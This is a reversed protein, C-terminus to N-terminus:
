IAHQGTKLFELSVELAMSIANLYALQNGQNCVGAEIISILSQQIGAKEALEYQKLGQKYRLATIRAGMDKTIVFKEIIADNLIRAREEVEEKTLIAEAERDRGEELISNENFSDGHRKQLKGLNSIQIDEFDIDNGDAFTLIFYMLNTVIGKVNDSIPNAEVLHSCERLTRATYVVEHSLGTEEVEIEQDFFDAILLENGSIEAMKCTYYLLDGLELTVEKIWRDDKDKGYGYHKKLWGMIEGIEEPIAIACHLFEKDPTDHKFTKNVGKLYDQLKM